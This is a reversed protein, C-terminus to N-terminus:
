HSESNSTYALVPYWLTYVCLNPIQLCGICDISIFMHFIQLCGVCDIFIFMHFFLILLCYIIPPRYIYKFLNLYVSNPFCHLCVYGLSSHFKPYCSFIQLCLWSLYGNYAYVVWYTIVSKHKIVWIVCM